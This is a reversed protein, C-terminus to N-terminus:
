PKFDHSIGDQKPTEDEGYTRQYHRSLTIQLCGKREDEPTIAHVQNGSLGLPNIPSDTRIRVFPIDLLKPVTNSPIYDRPTCYIIMGAMHLNGGHVIYKESPNTTCDERVRDAWFKNTMINGRPHDVMKREWEDWQTPRPKQDIGVIRIGLTRARAILYLVEDKNNNDNLVPRIAELTDEAPNYFFNQLPGNNGSDVLETYITTVGQQRFFTLQDILCNPISTTWHEEGIALGENEALLGSLTRQFRDIDTTSDTGSGSITNGIDDSHSEFVSGLKDSM